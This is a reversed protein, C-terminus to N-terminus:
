AKKDPAKNKESAAGLTRMANLICLVAVGVDAFVAAYMGAYGLASLVLVGAKVGLALAINERAITMTFRSLRVAVGLRDLADNMIVVDAAEIAADSGLGGMAIGVDARALVPADNLGDGVFALTRGAPLSQELAEVRSVKDQPLLKAYVEDIGLADAVRQAAPQMDGTLMVTRAVRQAKLAALAQRAEPKPADTLLLCGLAALRRM